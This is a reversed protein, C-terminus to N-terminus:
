LWFIGLSGFWLFLGVLMSTRLGFFGLLVSFSILTAAVNGAM